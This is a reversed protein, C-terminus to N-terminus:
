GKLAGKVGDPPWYVRYGNSIAVGQRTHPAALPRSRSLSSAAFSFSDVIAGGNWWLSAIGAEMVAIAVAFLLSTWKGVCTSPRVGEGRLLGDWDRPHSAVASATKCRRVRSAMLLVWWVGSGLCSTVLGRVGSPGRTNGTGPARHM